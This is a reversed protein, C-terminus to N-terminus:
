LPMRMMEQYASVLKNRIQLTLNMAVSAKESAIMVQHLPVNQGTVFQQTLADSQKDLASVKEINKELMDGFQSLPSDQSKDDTQGEIAPKKSETEINNIGAKLTPVQYNVHYDLNFTM